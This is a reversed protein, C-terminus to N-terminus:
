RRKRRRKDRRGKSPSADRDKPVMVTACATVAKAPDGPNTGFIVGRVGRGIAPIGRLHRSDGLDYAEPATSEEEEAHSTEAIRDQLGNLRAITELRERYKEEAAEQGAGQRILVPRM